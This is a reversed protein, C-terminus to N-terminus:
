YYKNNNRRDKIFRIIDTIIGFGFILVFISLPIMIILGIITIDPVFFRWVAVLVKVVLYALGILLVVMVVTGIGNLLATIYPYRSRNNM